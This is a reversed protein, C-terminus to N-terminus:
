EVRPAPPPCPEAPTKGLQRLLFAWRACHTSDPSLGPGPARAWDRVTRAGEGLDGPDRAHIATLLARTEEHSLTRKGDGEGPREFLLQDPLIWHTGIGDRLVPPMSIEHAVIRSGNAKYRPGLDGLLEAELALGLQGGASQVSRLGFSEEYEGTAASADAIVVHMEPWDAGDAKPLQDELALYLTVAGRNEVTGGDTVLYREQSTEGIRDIAADPFVPPFNASLAAARAVSIGPDNLTISRLDHPADPQPPLEPLNTLILRGGVGRTSCPKTRFTEVPNGAEDADCQGLLGTNLILGFPVDAMQGMGIERVFSEALLSGFRVRAPTWGESRGAVGPEVPEGEIGTRWRWSALAVNADSIGRVVDGIYPHAMADEFATWEPGLTGGPPLPRRLADAHIAFYALAAAGGSVGSALVVQCILGQEALGRLVSATYLAARTGGGSAAIAIRPQDPGLEGCPDPGAARSLGADPAGHAAGLLLSAFDLRTADSEEEVISLEAPQSTAFFGFTWPLGVCVLAAAGTAGPYALAARWLDRIRPLPDRAPPPPLNEIQRRFQTLVEAPTLFHLARRDDPDPAYDREYFGQLRLRGAGHLIILRHENQVQSLSLEADTEEALKPRTPPAFRYRIATVPEDRGSLLRLFRRALLIDAWFGFFWALAYAFLLYAIIIGTTETAAFVYTVYHIGRLRALALAVVAVSVVWQPGVFCLRGITNLIEMLREHLAGTVLLGWAALSLPVFWWWMTAESSVLAMFAGPLFVQLPYRLPTLVASTLLALGGRGGGSDYRENPPFLEVQSLAAPLPDDQIRLMSWHSIRDAILLGLALLIALAPGVHVRAPELSLGLLSFAPMAASIVLLGGLLLLIALYGPLLWVGMPRDRAVRAHLGALLALGLACLAKNTMSFDGAPGVTVGAVMLAALFPIFWPYDAPALVQWAFPRSPSLPKLLRANLRRWARVGWRVIGGFGDRRWIEVVRQVLARLRPGDRRAPRPPHDVAM